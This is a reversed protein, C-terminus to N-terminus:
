TASLVPTTVFYQKEFGKCMNDACKGSFFNIENGYVKSFKGLYHLIEDFIAIKRIIM